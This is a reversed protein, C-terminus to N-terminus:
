GGLSLTHNQLGCNTQFATGYGPRRLDFFRLGYRTTNVRPIEAQKEARLNYTSSKINVLDNIYEPSLRNVIKYVECAM